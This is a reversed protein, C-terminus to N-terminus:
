KLQKKIESRVDALPGNEPNAINHYYKRIYTVPFKPLWSLQMFITVTDTGHSLMLEDITDEYAPSISSFLKVIYDTLTLASYGSWVGTNNILQTILYEKDDVQIKTVNEPLDITKGTAREIEYWNGNYKIRMKKPNPMYIDEFKNELLTNGNMDSVGYKYKKCTLFMNGFLVDIKSYKHPLIEKGYKDYLGYNNDNGLKAYKGLFRDAHTYKPKVIVKGEKDILGFKNGKQAIFVGDELCILKKYEAETIIKGENTKLGFLINDKSYIKVPINVDEIAQVSTQIILAIITILIFKKM